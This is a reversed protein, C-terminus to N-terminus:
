RSDSSPGGRLTVYASAGRVNEDVIAPDRIAPFARQVCDTRECLRCTIGIPVAGELRELDVGDSYVLNPADRIRCGLGIAAITHPDHYGGQGKPVTRAVCFFAEGDPMVSTQVRISGPTGFASFVNWRPCAGAFRAFRIGSASFRKSINGALDVRIMHLPVGESGPRRLTTLRHCVQEFSAGFRRGLVEIDYRDRGVADLMAEYPMMVAGAFYNALVIRGLAASRPDTLGHESVIRTLTGGHEILATQVAVQFAMRSNPMVESLQLVNRKPDFRRLVSPGREAAVLETRVGHAEELRARMAALLRHRSHGVAVDGRTPLDLGDRLEVALDELGGFYNGARQIFDGVEESPMATQPDAPASQHGDYIKAALSDASASARRYARYLSVLHRSLDPSAEVLGRLAAPALEGDALVPDALVESLDTALQQEAEISFDTLDLGFERAVRLLLPATLPRQDHEILNLYSASIELRRALEVQALGHQKRLTRVRAGLRPGRSAM